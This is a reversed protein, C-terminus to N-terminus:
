LLQALAVLLYIRKVCERLVSIAKAVIKYTAKTSISMIHAVEEYTLDEYFKLFIAERQRSTLTHIAKSLEERREDDTQDSILQTEYPFIIEFNYQEELADESYFTNRRRNTREIIIRRFSAFLYNKISTTYGLNEKNKWLKTFLDQICDKILEKDTSFKRGYNYLKFFYTQYMYAYAQKNGQLFKNWVETDNDPLRM